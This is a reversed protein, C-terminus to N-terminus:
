ITMFSKASLAAFGGGTDLSLVGLPCQNIM